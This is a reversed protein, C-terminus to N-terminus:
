RDLVLMAADIIHEAKTKGFEKLIDVGSIKLFIEPKLKTVNDKPSVLIFDIKHYKLWSEWISADRKVSGVGQAKAKSVDQTSRMDKGKALRMFMQKKTEGVHRMRADEIRVCVKHGKNVYELIKYQALFIETVDLHVYKKLHHSWVAIGTNTGTDIGIHLDFNKAIVSLNREAISQKTKKM